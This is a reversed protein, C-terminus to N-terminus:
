AGEMFLETFGDASPWFARAGATTAVFVAHEEWAGARDARSPRPRDSPHTHFFGVLESGRAHAARDCAVLAGPDIRFRETHEELNALEVADDVVLELDASRGFLAGCRERESARMAARDLVARARAHLVISRPTRATGNM